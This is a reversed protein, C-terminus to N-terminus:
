LEQQFGSIQSSFTGDPKESLRVIYGLSTQLNMLYRLSAKFRVM